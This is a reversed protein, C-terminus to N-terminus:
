RANALEASAAPANAYLKRDLAAGLQRTIPGPKGTGIPRGDLQVIPTVDTTTGTVFLEDLRGIEQQLIPTERVNVGEELALELLVDRTIGPLIYNSRPYTRLEGDIVGFVNTHSGETILGDRIFVAELSGAAVAQQKALVAGLLNVTKLDCRSWRIDPYTVATAGTERQATNPTFSSSSLFVTPLTTAPPFYHTRPAAGRTIQLYVTGEGSTLENERILRYHVEIIQEATMRPDIGIGRLGYMLRRMHRDPEFLRGNVVRTVEYIGDGFIFGRDDVSLTARERPLFEGNLYVVGPM